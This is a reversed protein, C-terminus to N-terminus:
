IPTFAFGVKRDRRCGALGGDDIRQTLLDLAIERNEGIVSPTQIQDDVRMSVGIMAAARHLQALQGIRRYRHMTERRSRVYTDMDFVTLRQFYALLFETDEMCRAVSDIRYAQERLIADEGAINQEDVASTAGVKRAAIRANLVIRYHALQERQGVLDQNKGGVIVSPM